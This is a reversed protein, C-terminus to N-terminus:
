CRFSDLQSVTAEEGEFRPLNSKSRHLITTSGKFQPSNSESPIARPGTHILLSHNSRTKVGYLIERQVNNISTILFLRVLVNDLSGFIAIINSGTRCLLTDLIGRTRSTM